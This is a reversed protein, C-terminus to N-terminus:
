IVVISSNSLNRLGLAYLRASPEGRKSRVNQGEWAVDLWPSAAFQQGDRTRAKSSECVAGANM